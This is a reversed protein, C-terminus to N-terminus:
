ARRPITSFGPSRGEPQIAGDGPPCPQLSVETVRLEAAGAPQAPLLVALLLVMLPLVTRLLASALEQLGTIASRGTRASRVSM